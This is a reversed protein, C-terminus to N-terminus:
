YTLSVIDVFQSFVMPGTYLVVAVVEAKILKASKSIEEQWLTEVVKINRGGGKQEPPCKQPESVYTWEKRPTTTINYNSSTFPM